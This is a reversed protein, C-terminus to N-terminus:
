KGLIKYTFGKSKFFEGIKKLDNDAILFLYRINYFYYLIYIYIYMLGNLKILPEIENLIKWTVDM